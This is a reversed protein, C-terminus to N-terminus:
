VENVFDVYVDFPYMLGTEESKFEIPMSVFRNSIFLPSVEHLKAMQTNFTDYTSTEDQFFTSLLHKYLMHNDNKSDPHIMRIITDIFAHFTANSSYPDGDERKFNDHLYTDYLIEESFFLKADNHVTIQVFLSPKALDLNQVDIVKTVLGSDVVDLENVSHEEM